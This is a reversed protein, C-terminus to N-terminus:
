NPRRPFLCNKNLQLFIFVLRWSSSNGASERQVGEIGAQDERVHRPAIGRSIGVSGVASVPEEPGMFSGCDVSGHRESSLRRPTM